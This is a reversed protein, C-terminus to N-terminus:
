NKVWLKLNYGILRKAFHVNPRHFKASLSMNKQHIEETPLARQLYLEGSKYKPGFTRPKGIWALDDFIRNVAVSNIRGVKSRIYRLDETSAIETVFFQGDRSEVELELFEDNYAFMIKSNNEKKHFAGWLIGGAYKIRLHMSSHLLEELHNDISIVLEKTLVTM